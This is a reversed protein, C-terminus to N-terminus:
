KKPSKKFQSPNLKSVAIANATRFLKRYHPINWALVLCYATDQISWLAIGSTGSYKRLFNQDENKAGLLIESTKPDTFFIIKTLQIEWNFFFNM